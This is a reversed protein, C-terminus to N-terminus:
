SAEARRAAVSIGHQGVLPEFRGMVAWVARLRLSAARDVAQVAAESYLWAGGEGDPEVWHAFAVRVTGSRDWALFEDPGALPPYDRALTWIRGALGSVLAHEGEDLVVFPYRRFLAGASTEAPTGPIRWRVLRGLRGMEGLTTEQAAQWLRAPEVAAGRRHLTRIAPDPLWSELRSV